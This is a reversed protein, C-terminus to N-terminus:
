RRKGKDADEVVRELILEIFNSLTRKDAAALKELAAKLSPRLRVNLVISRIEDKAMASGASGIVQGLM